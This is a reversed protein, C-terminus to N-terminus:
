DAAAANLWAALENYDCAKRLTQGNPHTDIIQTADGLPTYPTHPLCVVGLIRRYRTLDYNTGQPQETLTRTVQQWKAVSQEILSVSNRVTRFDGADYLGTYPRSKCSVLLLTEGDEGVADFDTLVNQGHPRPKLGRSPALPSPKWPSRDILGQVTQEFHEARINVLPGQGEPAITCLALLHRTAADLDVVIDPGAHHLVPSPTLPWTTVPLADLLTLVSDPDTLHHDPFWTDLESRLMPLVHALYSTLLDRGLTVYGYRTLSLWGHTTHRLLYLSLAQLLAVLAPLQPQWWAAHPNSLALLDRLQGLSLGRPAFRGWVVVPTGDAPTGQWSPLGQWASLPAVAIVPLPDDKHHEESLVQTGAGLLGAGFVAVRQDYLAIAEELHPTPVGIPLPLGPRSEFAMGKSARRLRSHIDSLVITTKALRLVRRVVGDTIPFAIQGDSHPLARCPKNSTTAILEMLGRDYPGTTPLEGEFLDPLRRLYWLWQVAPYSQALAHLDKELTRRLVTFYEGAEVPELTTPPPCAALLKEVTHAAWRASAAPWEYEAHTLFQTTTPDLVLKKSHKRLQDPTIM